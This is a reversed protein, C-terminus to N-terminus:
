NYDVSSNIQNKIIPSICWNMPCQRIGKSGQTEGSCVYLAFLSLIYMTVWSTFKICGHIYLNGQHNICLYNIKMKIKAM